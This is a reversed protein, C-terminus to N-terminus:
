VLALLSVEKRLGLATLRERREPQTEVFGSCPRVDLDGKRAEAEDDDVEQGHEPVVGRQVM